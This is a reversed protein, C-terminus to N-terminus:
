ESCFPIDACTEIAFRSFLALSSPCPSCVTKTEYLSFRELVLRRPKKTVSAQASTQAKAGQASHPATMDERSTLHNGHDAKPLTAAGLGDVTIAPLPVSQTATSLSTSDSPSSSSDVPTLATALHPPQTRRVAAPTPPAQQTSAHGPIEDFAATSGAFVEPFSNSSLTDRNPPTSPLGTQM